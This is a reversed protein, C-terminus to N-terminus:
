PHTHLNDFHRHIIAVKPPPLVWFLVLQPLRVWLMGCCLHGKVMPQNISHIVGPSCGIFMFVYVKVTIGGTRDTNKLSM